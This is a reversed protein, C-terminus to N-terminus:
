RKRVEYLMSGDHVSPKSHGRVSGRDRYSGLLAGARSGLVAHRKSAACVDCPRMVSAGRGRVVREHKTPGKKKESWERCMYCFGKAVESDNFLTSFVLRNVDDRIRQTSAGHESSPLSVACTGGPKIPIM